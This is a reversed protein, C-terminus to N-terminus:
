FLAPRSLPLRVKAVVARRLGEPAGGSGWFPAGRCGLGGLVVGLRRGLRELPLELSWCHVGLAVLILGLSRFDVESDCLGCFIRFCVGLM